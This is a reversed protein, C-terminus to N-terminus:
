LPALVDMINDAVDQKEGKRWKDFAQEAERFAYAALAPGHGFFVSLTVVMLAHGVWSAWKRRPDVSWLYARGILDTMDRGGRQTHGRISGPATGGHPRPR